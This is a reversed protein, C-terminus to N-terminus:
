QASIPNHLVFPGYILGLHTPVMLAQFWQLDILDILDWKVKVFMKYKLGKFASNFGM